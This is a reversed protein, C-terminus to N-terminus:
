AILRRGPLAPQTKRAGIASPESARPRQGNTAPRVPVVLTFTSGRDLESEVTIDGGHLRVVDRAISLGLGSGTIGAIREDRARYFREFSRECDEPTMGIGTDAVKVNLATEDCAVTIKISGGSPTYKIANGVLNHLALALKDRDAQITPLKPPLNFTLTLGKEKAAARYDADLDEFLTALKVDDHHVQHRGAELEAMSLMDAVLRQLRKAEGNIVNLSQSWVQPDKEGESMATEAYLLINTLPTRLEHTVQTVFSNRSQDAIRQQTVDEIVIMAASEDDRRVPRITFRLVDGGEGGREVEITTARRLTGSAVATAAEAARPDPLRGGIPTGILQDRSTGLYLAAAENAYTANLQGDVLILGQAMADCMSSLDRSRDGRAAPLELLRKTVLVQRLREAEALLGNWATAEPGLEPQVTLVALDDEGGGIALLADRIYALVRVRGRMNRYVLLAAVLATAGILAIGAQTDSVLWSPAREPAALVIQARGRGAVDFPYRGGVTGAPAIFPPLDGAPWPDPMAALAGPAAMAAAILDGGPLVVSCTSSETRSATEAILSRLAAFDGHELLRSVVTALMTGVTDVHHQQEIRMAALQQRGSWWAAGGVALLLIVAFLLGSSAIASEGQHLLRHRRPRTKSM